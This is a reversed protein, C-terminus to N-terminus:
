RGSAARATPAYVTVFRSWKADARHFLHRDDEAARHDSGPFLMSRCARRSKSSAGSCTTSLSYNLRQVRNAVFPEAALEDIGEELTM